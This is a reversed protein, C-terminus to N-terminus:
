RGVTLFIFVTLTKEQLGRGQKDIVPAGVEQGRWPAGGMEAGIRFIYCPTDLPDIERSTM